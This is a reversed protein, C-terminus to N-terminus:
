KVKVAVFEAKLFTAEELLESETMAGADGFKEHLYVKIAIGIADDPTDIVEDCSDAEITAILVEGEKGCTICKGKRIVEYEM